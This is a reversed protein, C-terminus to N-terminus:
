GKAPLTLCIQNYNEQRKDAERASEAAAETPCVLGPRNCFAGNFGKIFLDFRNDLGDLFEPQNIPLSQNAYTALEYATAALNTLETIREQLCELDTFLVFQGNPAEEMKGGSVKVNSPPYYTNPNFRRVTEQEAKLREYDGLVISQTETM